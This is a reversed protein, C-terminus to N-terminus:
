AVQKQPVFSIEKNISCVINGNLDTRFVQMNRDAFRQLTEARPHDFDNGENNASIVAYECKVFDLFSSISSTDSGHHAVKLVDCDIENVGNAKFNNVLRTENETNSDGTFVVKKNNYELIGIPSISNKEEANKLTNSAWEEQTPCYFTIRYNATEIKLTGVNLFINADVELLAKNFFTTYVVTDITNPDSFMDLKEKPLNEDPNKARINPMYINDVDYSDLINDLYYCHDSDGHTLMLYDIQGDGIRQSLYNLVSTQYKGYNRCNGADILMEKGDPLMIFICDGQGVDIFHVQLENEGPKLAGDNNNKNPVFASQIWEVGAWFTKPSAFYLIGVSVAMVLLLSVVVIFFNKTPNIKVKVKGNKSVDVDVTKKKKAMSCWIDYFNNKGSIMQIRDYLLRM